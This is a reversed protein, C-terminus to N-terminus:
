PRRRYLFPICGAALLALATPEPIPQENPFMSFQTDFTVSNPNVDQNWAEPDNLYPSLDAGIAFTLAVATSQGPAPWNNSSPLNEIGLNSNFNIIGTLTSLTPSTSTIEVSAQSIPGSLEHSTIHPITDFPSDDYTVGDWYDFNLALSGGTFYARAPSQLTSNYDIFNTSIELHVNGTYGPVFGTDEILTLISSAAPSGNDDASWTLVHGTYSADNVGDFTNDQIETYEAAGASNVALGLCFVSCAWGFYNKTMAKEEGLDVKWKRFKNSAYAALKLGSYM